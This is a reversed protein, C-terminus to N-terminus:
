HQRASDRMAEWWLLQAPVPHHNRDKANRPIEPYRSQSKAKEADFAAAISDTREIYQKFDNEIKDSTQGWTQLDIQMRESEARMKEM